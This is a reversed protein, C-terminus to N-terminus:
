PLGLHSGGKGSDSNEKKRVESDRQKEAIGKRGAMVEGELVVVVRAKSTM